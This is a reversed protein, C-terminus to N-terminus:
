LSNFCAMSLIHCWYQRNFRSKWSFTSNLSFCSELSHMILVIVHLEATVFFGLSAGFHISIEKCILLYRWRNVAYLSQRHGLDDGILRTRYIRILTRYYCDRHQIGESIHLHHDMIARRTLPSVTWDSNQCSTQYCCVLIGSSGSMSINEQEDCRSMSVGLHIFLHILWLM